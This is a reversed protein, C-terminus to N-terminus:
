AIDLAVGASVQRLLRSIGDPDTVPVAVNTFVSQSLGSRENSDAEAQRRKDELIWELERREM